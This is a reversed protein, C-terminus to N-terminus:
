EVSSVHWSLVGGCDKNIGSNGDMPCFGNPETFILTRFSAEAVFVGGDQLRSTSWYIVRALM